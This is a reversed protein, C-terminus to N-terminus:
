LGHTQVKSGFSFMRGAQIASAAPWISGSSLPNALHVALVVDLGHEMFNTGGSQSPINRIFCERGEPREKRIEDLESPEAFPFDPRIPLRMLQEYIAMLQERDNGATEIKEIFGETNCGEDRRQIVEEKVLRQLSDWGAM